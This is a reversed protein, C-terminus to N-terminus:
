IKHIVVDVTLLFYLSTPTYLFSFPDRREPGCRSALAGFFAVLVAAVVLVDDQSERERERERQERKMEKERRQCRETIRDLSRGAVAASM